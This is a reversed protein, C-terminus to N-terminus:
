RPPQLVSAPTTTEMIPDAHRHVLRWRGDERRFVHTVRLTMPAAASGDALRPTSREVTVTYALDGNVATSVYEVELAAGSDAFRTAAWDYRAGVDRWGRAVIGWGGMLTADERRSALAKWPGPDGNIFRATGREFEQLFARFGAEPDAPRTSSGAGAHGIAVAALVLTSLTIGRM